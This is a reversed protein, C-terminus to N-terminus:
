HHLLFSRRVDYRQAAVDGDGKPMVIVNWFVGDEVPTNIMEDYTLLTNVDVNYKKSIRNKLEKIGEKGDIFLVKGSDDTLADGRSNKIFLDSFVEYPVYESTKAKSLDVKKLESPSANTSFSMIFYPNSLNYVDANKTHAYSILNYGEERLRETVRLAINYYEKAFFDGSDNWRMFIKQPNFDRRKKTFEHRLERYVKDEFKDPENLLYNLIRIASLNPDPFQIYNGQKAYCTHLCSGVGVCTNVVIFTKRSTDYVLGRFAPLGTNVTLTDGYGSKEMKTNQSLITKPEQTIDSIIRDIDIDSYIEHPETDGTIKHVNSAHYYPIKRDFKDRKWPKIERRKIGYNLIDVLEEPKICRDHVDPYIEKDMERINTKCVRNMMEFLRQKGYKEMFM